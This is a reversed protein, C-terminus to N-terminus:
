ESCTIFGKLTNIKNKIAYQLFQSRVWCAVNLLYGTLGTSSTIYGKLEKPKYRIHHTLAPDTYMFHQVLPSCTCYSLIAWYTCHKRSFEQM